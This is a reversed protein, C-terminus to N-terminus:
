SEGRFAATAAAGPVRGVSNRSGASPVIALSGILAEISAAALALVQGHEHGCLRNM